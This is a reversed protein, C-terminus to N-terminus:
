EVHEYPIYIVLMHEILDLGIPSHFWRQSQTHSYRQIKLYIKILLFINKLLDKNLLCLVNYHLTIISRNSFVWM